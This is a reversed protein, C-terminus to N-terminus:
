RIVGRAREMDGSVASVESGAEGCWDSSREASIAGAAGGSTRPASFWSKCTRSPIALLRNVASRARWKSVAACENRTVNPQAEHALKKDLLLPLIPHYFPTTTLEVQGSDQLRQHLPVIERLLDLHKDLLWDKEQETFHRGKKRLESLEADEEFALPHIWAMNFLVQLDRFDRVSCRRLVDRAPGKGRRRYLEAYRPLPKIMHEPNAM